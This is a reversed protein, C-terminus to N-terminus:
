EGVVSLKAADGGSGLRSQKQKKSLANALSDMNKDVKKDATIDNDKLFKMAAAILAPSATYQLEDTEVVCGDEDIETVAEQQQLQTTLVTAVVGHLNGLTTETAQSM